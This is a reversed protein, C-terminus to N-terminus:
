ITGNFEGVRIRSTMASHAIDEVNCNTKKDVLRFLENTGPWPPEQVPLHRDLIRHRIAAVKGTKVCLRQSKLVTYSQGYVYSLTRIICEFLTIQPLEDDFIKFYSFPCFVQKGHSRFIRYLTM